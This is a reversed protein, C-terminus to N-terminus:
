RLPRERELPRELTRETDLPLEAELAREPERRPDLPRAQERPREPERGRELELGPRSVNLRVLDRERVGVARLLLSVSEREELPGDAQGTPVGKDDDPIEVSWIPHPPVGMVRGLSAFQPLSRHFQVQGKDGILVEGSADNGSTGLAEETGTHSTSAVPYDGGGSSNCVPLTFGAGTETHDPYGSVLPAYVTSTGEAQQYHTSGPHVRTNELITAGDEFNGSAKEMDARSTSPRANDIRSISGRHQYSTSGNDTLGDVNYAGDTIPPPQTNGQYKWADYPIRATDEPTFSLKEMGAHSTTPRALQASTSSVIPPQSTSGSDTADDVDTADTQLNFANWLDEFSDDCITTYDDFTGSSGEAGERSTSPTAEEIFAFAPPTHGSNTEESM